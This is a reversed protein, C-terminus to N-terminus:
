QRVDLFAGTNSGALGSQRDGDTLPWLVGKQGLRAEQFEGCQVSDGADRSRDGPAATSRRGAAGLRVGEFRVGMEANGTLAWELQTALRNYPHDDWM